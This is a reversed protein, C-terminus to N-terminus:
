NEGVEGREVERKQEFPTSILRTSFAELSLTALTSYKRCRQSRGGKSKIKPSEGKEKLHARSAKSCPRSLSIQIFILTSTSLSRM